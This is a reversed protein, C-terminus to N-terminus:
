WLLYYSLHAPTYKDADKWEKNRNRFSDRKLKNKTKTYDAYRLDGFHIKKGDDDFVM